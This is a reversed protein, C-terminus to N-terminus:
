GASPAGVPRHTAEALSMHERVLLVWGFLTVPIFGCAHYLIAYGFALSHSVGFMSLAIVAATHFVGIYGPASPLSIGLGVFALVTWAAVLPLHLHAAFLATWAAFAATLWVLFSWAVIPGAHRATRVGVLGRVFMEFVAGGRARLWESRRTLRIIVTRCAGPATAVAILIAVAILDLGLFVGATWRLAPPVEIVLLLSGLIMVVALGDLVREVVLTAFPMWFGEASHRAVVWVRVIEGARLPLVNNAMYGIMSARFLAPPNSGPPFLYHWRRARTWVGAVAFFASALAWGWQTNALQARLAQLDVKWLLVALLGVSIVIGAAVKLASL